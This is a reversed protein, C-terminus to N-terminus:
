AAMEQERSPTKGLCLQLWIHCQGHPKPQLTRAVRASYITKPAGRSVQNRPRCRCRIRPLGKAKARSTLDPTRRGIKRQPSFPLTRRARKEAAVLGGVLQATRRQIGTQDVRPRARQSVPYWAPRQAGAARPAYEPLAQASSSAFREMFGRLQSHRQKADGGDDMHAREGGDCMYSQHRVQGRPTHTPLPGFSARARSPAHSRAHPSVLLSVCNPPRDHRCRPGLKGWREYTLFRNGDCGRSLGREGRERGEVDVGGDACRWERM